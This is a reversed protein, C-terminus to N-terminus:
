ALKALQKGLAKYEKEADKNTWEESSFLGDDTLKFYEDKLSQMKAELQERKGQLLQERLPVEEFSETINLSDDVSFTWWRWVVDSWGPTAFDEKLTDEEVIGNFLKFNEGMIQWCKEVLWSPVEEGMHRRYLQQLVGDPLVMSDWHSMAEGLSSVVTARIVDGHGEPNKLGKTLIDVWKEKTEPSNLAHEGRGLIRQSSTELNGPDIDFAYNSGFVTLLLEIYRRKKEAKNGKVFKKVYANAFELRYWIITSSYNATGLAPEVITQSIFKLMEEQTFDSYNGNYVAEGPLMESDVIMKDVIFRPTFVEGRVQGKGADSVFSWGDPFTRYICKKKAVEITNDYCDCIEENHAQLPKVRKVKPAAM